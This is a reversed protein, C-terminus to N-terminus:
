EVPSTAVPAVNTAPQLTKLPVAPPEASREPQEIQNEPEIEESEATVARRQIAGTVGVIRVALRRTDEDSRSAVVIEASDSSGDPYFTIPPYSFFEDSAEEEVADDGPLVALESAGAEPARVEEIRILDTIGRVYADAEALNEFWGPRGLPDPEWLVQLNGLPVMFGDGLDEEFWIQVQRGTNAAQARAFRLLGELQSAGEDLESGRYLASFNFVAAGLLLLVLATALLLEVLTFGQGAERRQLGAKTRM